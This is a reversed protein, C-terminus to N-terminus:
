QIIIKTLTDEAKLLYIGQALYSLDINNKGNVLELEKIKQGVSNFVDIKTTVTSLIQFQGNSPNPYVSFSKSKEVNVGVITKEINFNIQISNITASYNTIFNISGTFNGSTDKCIINLPIYAADGSNLSLTNNTIQILSSNSQINQLQVTTTGTNVVPILVRVSDLTDSFKITNITDIYYIDNITTATSTGIINNIRDIFQPYDIFPNRNKQLLAIDANRKMEIADPLFQKHWTKLISEQPAFHNSYDSYRIVFYMMARATRGKQADRPEYLNNAGLHSPSNINDNQYPQSAIGFPYNGRSNNAPGDTPFLHFLDSRMPEAQNFFGQPFTHETNFNKSPDSTTQADTRSTYGVVQRGTYVCELTNSSAGQGNVRKNDFEMFMKDRATNYGLSVYGASIISKLSTKLADQALNETANYYTNSFKGQAKVDVSFSYMEPQTKVFLESNYLINQNPKFYIRVLGSDNVQITSDIIQSTFAKFNYISFGTIESIKIQESTNNYIKLDFSDKSLETAPNFQISSKNLLVQANLEALNLLLLATSALLLKIKM